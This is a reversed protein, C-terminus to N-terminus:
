NSSFFKLAILMGGLAFIMAGIRIQLEKLKMDLHSKTVMEEGLMEALAESAGQAQATTFGAAELKRSLKLTDFTVTAM